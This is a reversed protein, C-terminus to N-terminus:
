KHDAVHMRIDGLNGARERRDGAADPRERHGHQELVSESGRLKASSPARLDPPDPLDPLDPLDPPAPLDPPGPPDPRDPTAPPRPPGAPRRALHARHTRHR